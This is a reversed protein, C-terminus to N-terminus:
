RCAYSGCVACACCRYMLWVKTRVQWAYYIFAIKKADNKDSQGRGKRGAEDALGASQSRQPPSLLMPPCMGLRIHRETPCVMPSCVTGYVAYLRIGVATMRYSVPWSGYPLGSICSVRRYPVVTSPATSLRLECAGGAGAGRRCRVTRLSSSIYSPNQSLREVNATPPYVSPSTIAPRKTTEVKRKRLPRAAQCCNRATEAL